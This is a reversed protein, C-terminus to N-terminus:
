ILFFYIVSSDYQLISANMVSHHKAPTYANYTILSNEDNEVPQKYGKYSM